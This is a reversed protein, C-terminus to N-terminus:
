KNISSLKGEGKTKKGINSSNEKKRMVEVQFFVIIFSFVVVGQWIVM